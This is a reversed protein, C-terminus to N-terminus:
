SGSGLETPLRYEISVARDASRASGHRFVAHYWFQSAKLLAFYINQVYGIGARRNESTETVSAVDSWGGLILFREKQAVADVFGLEDGLFTNGPLVEGPANSAAIKEYDILPVRPFPKGRGGWSDKEDLPLDSYFLACREIYRKADSPFFHEFEAFILIPEFRRVLAAIDDAM